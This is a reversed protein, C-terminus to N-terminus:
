PRHWERCGACLAHQNWRGARHDDRLVALRGGWIEAAGEVTADGFSEKALADQECAVVKGDSLVHMRSKLRRCPRRAPPSMDAVAHDPIQGAYDSAGAIAASGLAALWKDYWVEMEGLNERCKTFVPVLIPIAKGASWRQEVFIKVNELVRSLGDVGMVATYTKATIAPIQISIVDIETRALTAIFEPSVDLLDTRVHIAPIGALHAAEIIEFFNPALLPDGLGGLTLRLDDVDSLETFLRRAAELSLDERVADFHGAPSFVPRTSRKATIELILERPHLDASKLRDMGQIFQEASLSDIRAEGQFLQALRDIQRTSDLTFRYLSRAVATPVPACSKESIPDRCPQQPQYQLFKGPHTQAAALQRLISKKLVVASLGPAAQSFVLPTEGNENAHRILGAILEPDVFGASPDIMAIADAELKDALELMWPGYFGRDFECTQLLGGRWGDAWRRAATIADMSPIPIRPGKALVYAGAEEAIPQVHLLQDEWCLIAVQGIEDCRKLRELTRALVRTGQFVRVASNRTESEHLMSLIAATINKTIV